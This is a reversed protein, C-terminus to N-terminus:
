QIPSSALQDSAIAAFQNCLINNVTCYKRLFILTRRKVLTEVSSFNFYDQCERIIENSSTRFIKMLVRTVTFDLSRLDSKNLQCSEVGYLLCPLCKSKILSLVVEESATRGIKGYVGNFARYFSKKANDFCCRFNRGSVIYIGLYRLQNVWTLHNGELTVIKSCVYACRPGIRTCVSKKNNIALDLHCLEQECCTLLKQLSNISPALLLIDDAYLIISCCVLGQYCVINLFAVKSM